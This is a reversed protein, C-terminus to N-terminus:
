GVGPAVVREVLVRLGLVGPRRRPRVAAVERVPGARGGVPLLGQPLLRQAARLGRCGAGAPGQREQALGLPDPDGGGLHTRPRRSAPGPRPPARAIPRAPGPRASETSQVTPLLRDAVTLRATKVGSPATQERRDGSDLGGSHQEKTRRTTSLCTWARRNLYTSARSLLARALSTSPRSGKCTAQPGPAEARGGTGIADLTRPSPGKPEKQCQASRWSESLPASPGQRGPRQQTGSLGLRTPDGPGQNGQGDWGLHGLRVPATQSERGCWSM